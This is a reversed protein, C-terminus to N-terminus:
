RRTVALGNENRIVEFATSAGELARCDGFGGLSGVLYRQSGSCATAVGELGWLEALSITPVSIGAWAAKVVDAVQAPPLPAKRQVTAAHINKAALRHPHASEHSGRMFPLEVTRVSRPSRLAVGTDVRFIATQSAYIPKPAEGDKTPYYSPKNSVGVGSVEVSYGWDAAAGIAWEEFEKATMECKHDSHRFVRDTRGTPDAFGRKECDDCSAGHDPFKSNFDFNQTTLPAANM